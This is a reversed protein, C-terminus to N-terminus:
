KVTTTDAPPSAAGVSANNNSQTIKIDKWGNYVTVGVVAGLSICLFEFLQTRLEPDLVRQKGIANVVLEATFLTLAWVLICRKISAAGNESMAERLFKIM